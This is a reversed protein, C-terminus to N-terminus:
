EEIRPLLSQIEAHWEKVTVESEISLLAVERIGLGQQLYTNYRTRM